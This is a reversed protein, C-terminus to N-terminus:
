IGHEMKEIFFINMHHCIMEHFIKRGTNRHFAVIKENAMSVFVRGRM